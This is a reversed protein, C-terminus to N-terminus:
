AWGGQGAKICTLPCASETEGVSFFFGSVDM